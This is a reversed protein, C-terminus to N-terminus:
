DHLGLLIISRGRRICRGSRKMQGPQSRGQVASNLLGPAHKQAASAIATQAVQQPSHTRANRAYPVLRDVPWIEIRRAMAPAIHTAITM